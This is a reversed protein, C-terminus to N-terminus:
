HQRRNVCNTTSCQRKIKGDYWNKECSKKLLKNLGWLRWGKDQFEKIRKTAGYDKLIYLIEILIRDEDNFGM